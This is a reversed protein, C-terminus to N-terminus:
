GDVKAAVADQREMRFPLLGLSALQANVAKMRRRCADLERQLNRVEWEAVDARETQKQLHRQLAVMQQKMAWPSLERMAQGMAALSLGM